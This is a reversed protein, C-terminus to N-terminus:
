KRTNYTRTVTSINKFYLYLSKAHQPIWKLTLFMEILKSKTIIRYVRERDVKSLRAEVISENRTKDNKTNAEPFCLLIKIVLNLNYNDLVFDHSYKM